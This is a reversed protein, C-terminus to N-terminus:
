KPQTSQQQDPTNKLAPLTNPLVLNQQQLMHQQQQQQHQQQQQLHRAQIAQHLYQISPLAVIRPNAMMMQPHLIQPRITQSLPPLMPSNPKKISEPTQVNALNVGNLNEKNVSNIAAVPPLESTIPKSTDVVKDHKKRANSVQEDPLQGDEFQPKHKGYKNWFQACANCCLDMGIFRWLPTNTVNCNVCIRDEKPISKLRMIKPPQTVLNKPRHRRNSDWYLKCPSCYPTLHDPDTPLYRWAKADKPQCNPNHCVREVPDEDVTPMHRQKPQQYHKASSKSPPQKKSKGSRPRGVTRRHSPPLRSNGYEDDWGGDDNEDDLDEDEGADSYYEPEANEDFEYDYFEVAPDQLQGRLRKVSKGGTLGLQGSMVNASSQDLLTEAVEALIEIRRRKRSTQRASGSRHYSYERSPDYESDSGALTTTGASSSANSLSSQPPSHHLLYTLQEKTASSSQRGISPDDAMMEGSRHHNQNRNIVGDVPYSHDDTMPYSTDEFHNQHTPPSPQQQQYSSLLQPQMTRRKRTRKSSHSTSQKKISNQASKLLQNNKRQSGSSTVTNVSRLRPLAAASAISSSTRRQSKDAYKKDPATQGVVGRESINSTTANLSRWNDGTNTFSSSSNNNKFSTQHNLQKSSPSTQYLLSNAHMRVRLSHEEDESETDSISASLSYRDESRRNQQFEQAFLDGADTFDDSLACLDMQVQAQRELSQVPLPLSSQDEDHNSTNNLVTGARFLESVSLAPSGFQITDGGEKDLTDISPLSALLPQPVPPPAPRRILQMLPSSLVYEAPAFADIWKDNLPFLHSPNSQTRDRPIQPGSNDGITSTPNQEKQNYIPDQQDM